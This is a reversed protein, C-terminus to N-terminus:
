VNTLMEPMTRAGLRKLIRTTGSFLAFLRARKFMALISAFLAQHVGGRVSITPLRGIGEKRPGVLPVQLRQPCLHAELSMAVTANNRLLLVAEVTAFQAPSM